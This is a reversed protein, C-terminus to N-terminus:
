REDSVKTKRCEDDSGMAITLLEDGIGVCICLVDRGNNRIRGKQKMELRVRKTIAVAEGYVKGVGEQTV